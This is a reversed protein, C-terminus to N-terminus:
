LQHHGLCFAGLISTHRSTEYFIYPEYENRMRVGARPYCALGCKQLRQGLGSFLGPRAGRVNGVSAHVVEDNGGLGRRM